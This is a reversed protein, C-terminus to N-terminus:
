PERAPFLISALAPHKQQLASWALRAQECRDIPGTRCVRKLNLKAEEGRGNIGLAMAYRLLTSSSPSRLAVTRMWNLQDASLPRNAQEQAFRYFERPQDLLSLRLEETSLVDNTGIGQAEFRQTRVASELRLYEDSIALLLMVLAVSVSAHAIRGIRRHTAGIAPTTRALSECAGALFAAPLLFYAFHLPFEVMAHLLMAGLSGLLVWEDASRVQRVLVVIWAFLAVLIVTGIVVGNYLLLDLALNHAHAFQEHSMSRGPLVALQQAVAVQNWGYGWGPSQAIATLAVAWVSLRSGSLARDALSAGGSLLLGSNIADRLLVATFFVIVGATVKSLDLQLPARNRMLFVWCWLMIVFLWGTRSQTLVLGIGLTTVLLWTTTGSWWKRQHAHLCGFVGMALLTALHNPQALNAYPQGGRILDVIWVSRAVQLWQLMAIFSSALAAVLLAAMLTDIFRRADHAVWFSATTACAAFALLYASPLLADSLHWILGFGYQLAPVAAFLLTAVACRPWKFGSEGSPLLCASLAVLAAGLASFAELQFSVWPPFHNPLLFAAAILCSGVALLGHSARLMM